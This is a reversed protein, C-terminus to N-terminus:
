SCAQLTLLRTFCRRLMTVSWAATSWALIMELRALVAIAIAIGAPYSSVLTALTGLLVAAAYRALLPLM